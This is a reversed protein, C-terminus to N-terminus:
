RAEGGKIDDPTNWNDLLSPDNLPLRAVRLGDLLEVMGYRRLAITEAIRSSIAAHYAACCPHLQLRADPATCAPVVADCLAPDALGLMQKLLESSLRPMDCALLLCWRGPRANLLGALGGIPGIGAPRDPIRPLDALAPPLEFPPEGVLAVEDVAAAAVRVTRAILTEGDLGILAKPQGM